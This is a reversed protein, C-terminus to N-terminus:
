RRSGTAAVFGYVLTASTSLVLATIPALLVLVTGGDFSLQAALLFAAAAGLSAGTVVIPSTRTAAVLAPLAALAIILWTALLEGAPQLPFGDLTTRLENAEIEVGSMEGSPTPHIDQLIPADTGVLVVRGAFRSGPVRGTLVDAFGYTPFTGAPGAYDILPGAGRLRSRDVRVGLTEATVIPLSPLGNYTGAMHRLVGDGDTLLSVSGVRAGVRRQVAAGGLVLTQGQENVLAAAFVVPAARRAAGILALDGPRPRDFAIDFVIRRAGDGQLRDILTAYM